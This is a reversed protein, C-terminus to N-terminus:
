RKDWPPALKLEWGGDTSPYVLKLKGNWWQSAAIKLLATGDPNYKIDGMVTNEFKNSM